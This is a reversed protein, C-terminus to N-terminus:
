SAMFRAMALADARMAGVIVDAIRAAQAEQEATLEVQDMEVERPSFGDVEM